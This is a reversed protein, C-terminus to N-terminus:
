HMSLTIWMLLGGYQINRHPNYICNLDEWLDFTQIIAPLDKGVVGDVKISHEVQKSM